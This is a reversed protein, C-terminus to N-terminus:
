AQLENYFKIQKNYFESYNKYASVRNSITINMDLKEKNIIKNVQASINPLLEKNVDILLVYKDKNINSKLFYAKKIEETSSFYNFLENSLNPFLNYAQTYIPHLIEKKTIRFNEKNFLDKLIDQTLIYNDTKWNLIILASNKLAIKSVKDLTTELYQYKEKKFCNNIEKFDTFILYFKTKYDNNIYLMKGGIHKKNSILPVYFKTKYLLKQFKLGSEFNSFIQLSPDFIDPNRLLKKIELNEKPTNDKIM